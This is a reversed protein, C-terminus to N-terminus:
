SKTLRAMSRPARRAFLAPALKPPPFNLRIQLRLWKRDAIESKLNRKTTRLLDRVVEATECNGRGAAELHAVVSRRREAHQRLEGIRRETRALWRELIDREM